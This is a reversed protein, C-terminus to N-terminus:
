KCVVDPRLYIYIAIGINLLAIIACAWLLRGMNDLGDSAKKIEDDLEGM